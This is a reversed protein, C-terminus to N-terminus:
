SCKSSHQQHICSVMQKINVSVHPHKNSYDDYRTHTCYPSSQSGTIGYCLLYDFGSASVQKTVIFFLIVTPFHVNKSNGLM